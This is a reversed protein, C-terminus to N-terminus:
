LIGTQGVMYHLTKHKNLQDYRSELSDINTFPINTTMYYFYM